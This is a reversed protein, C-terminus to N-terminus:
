CPNFFSGSAKASSQSDQKKSSSKEWKKLIRQEIHGKLHTCASEAWKSTAMDPCAGSCIPLYVCDQCEKRELADEGPMVAYPIVPDLVHGIAEKPNALDQRYCKFIYGEPGIVFANESQASCYKGIVRKPLWNVEFGLDEALGLYKGQIEGWDNHPIKIRSVHRCVESFDYLLSFHVYFRTGWATMTRSFGRSHLLHLLEEIQMVNQLHCHVRLKLDFYRVALELKRLLDDFGGVTGRLRDFQDRPWDISVQFTRIHCERQLIRCMAEDLVWANTLIEAELSIGLQNVLAIVTPTLAQIDQLRLTPEGGYWHLLVLQTSPTIVKTLFKQVAMRTKQTLSKPYRIQFCYSCNLNCALTPTITLDILDRTKRWYNREEAIVEREDLSQEILFGHAYLGEVLELNETMKKYPIIKHSQFSQFVNTEQPSLEAAAGSLANYLLAKPPEQKEVSVVFNYKSGKLPGASFPIFTKKQLPEDFIRM